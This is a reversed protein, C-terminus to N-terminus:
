ASEHDHSGPAPRGAVRYLKGNHYVMGMALTIPKNPGKAQPVVEEAEAPRGCSRRDRVRTGKEGYKGGRRGLPKEQKEARPRGKRPM